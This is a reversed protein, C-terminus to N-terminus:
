TQTEYKGNHLSSGGVYLSIYRTEDTTFGDYVSLNIQTDSSGGSSLCECEVYEDNSVLDGSTAGFDATQAANISLYDGTGDTDVTVSVLTAM